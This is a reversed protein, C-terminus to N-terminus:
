VPIFGADVFKYISRYAYREGAKLIASPFNLNSLSDPCLQPELCLSSRRDYHIGEKGSFKGDLYNGSYMQLGPKNSFIQMHRLGSDSKLECSLRMKGDFVSAIMWNHDYGGNRKLQEEDEDIRAGVEHFETFDFPTGVVSLIKGNPVCQEDVEMYDMANIKLKHNLVTAGDHGNLNFYAHNTMSLVTDQDCIADFEIHLEDNDTLRYTVMVELNGPFGAEGDKSLYTLTLNDETHKIVRFLRSHFGEPGGHMTNDMDNIVTHYTKGGLEFRGGRIQGAHRGITAGMYYTSLEYGSVDEYGQVVDKIDGDRDPVELAVLTAGYDSIRATFGRKNNITFLHAKQGNGLQGFERKRM